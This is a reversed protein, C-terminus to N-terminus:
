FEPNSVVAAEAKSFKEIDQKVKRSAGVPVTSKGVVIAGPRMNRGITEAVAMVHALDAEGNPAQPTGVAIFIIESASIAKATDTSFSLRKEALNRKVLDELGPEYIPIAGKQLMAIKAGDVDACIVDNGLDALCAGAVLGVYGTGIVAIRM